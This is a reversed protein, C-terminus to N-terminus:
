YPLRGWRGEWLNRKGVQM